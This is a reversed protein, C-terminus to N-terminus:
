RCTTPCRAGACRRAVWGTSSRPPARLRNSCQEVQRELDQSKQVAADLQEQLAALKAMLAALEDQKVKLAAQATEMDAIAIKLAAKKPAVVKAVRDYIILAHVWKCLGAAAKSANAVKAPDFLPDKTYPTVKAIIKENVRIPQAAASVKGTSATANAPM